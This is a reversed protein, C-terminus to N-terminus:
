KIDQLVHRTLNGKLAAKSAEVKANATAHPIGKGDALEQLGIEVKRRFWSEYQRNGKESLTVIQQSM